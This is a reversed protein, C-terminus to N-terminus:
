KSPKKPSTSGHRPTRIVENALKSMDQRLAEYLALLDTTTDELHDVKKNLSDDPNTADPSVHLAFRFVQLLENGSITYPSHQRNDSTCRISKSNGNLRNRIRKFQIGHGESVVVYCEGDRMHRWESRDLLTCAVWDNHQFRPTMSDGEIQFFIGQRQSGVIIRPLTVAGLSEVFEQSLYGKRYNAAAKHNVVTYTPNGSTDQTALIIEAPGVQSTLRFALAETESSAPNIESAGNAEGKAKGPSTFSADSIFTRLNIDFFDVIKLVTEIAPESSGAVREYSAVQGRNLDFRKGFASQSEGLRERLKRINQGVISM